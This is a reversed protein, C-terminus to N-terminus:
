ALDRPSRSRGTPTCGWRSRSLGRRGPLDSTAVARVPLGDGGLSLIGPNVAIIYSMVMFTTVGGVLEGRVTTGHQRLRFLRELLDGAGSPPGSAGDARGVSRRGAEAM